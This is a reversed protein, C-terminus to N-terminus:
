QLHKDVDKVCRFGTHSLSTDPTTKARAAVRYGTCYSDHCLFSGGRQVRKKAAPEAPDFSSSPGQPNRVVGQKHQEKYTDYRYWDATWEWVNGALDYLGYHNPSFSKVQKTGVYGEQHKSQCPFSGVWIQAQPEQESFEEDGWPFEAQSLGGRAAVEWEAETPLRKGAWKAYAKADYWSMHTVPHDEKGKISSGPGKPHKWSAGPTWEWWFAHHLRRPKKQPQVFVLSGPVLSEKPPPPSGAPLQSMIEEMTPAREATTIYGTEEVFRAFERNTVPAEDMWFGSVFVAHAPREDERGRGSDTGM